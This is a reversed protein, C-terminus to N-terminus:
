SGTDEGKRLLTPESPSSAILPHDSSVTRISREHGLFVGDEFLRHFVELFGSPAYPRSLAEHARLTHCFTLVVAVKKRAERHREGHGFSRVYLCPTPPIELWGSLCELGCELSYPCSIPGLSSSGPRM